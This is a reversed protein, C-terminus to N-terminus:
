GSHACFWSGREETNLGGLRGKGGGVRKPEAPISLSYLFGVQVWKAVFSV